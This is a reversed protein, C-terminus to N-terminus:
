AASVLDKQGGCEAGFCEEAAENVKAYAGIDGPACANDTVLRRAKVMMEQEESGLTEESNGKSIPLRKLWQLISHIASDRFLVYPSIWTPRPWRDV